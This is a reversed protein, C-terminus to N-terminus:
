VYKSNNRKVQWGNTKKFPSDRTHTESYDNPGLYIKSLKQQSGSM